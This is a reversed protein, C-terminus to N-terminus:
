MYQIKMHVDMQKNNTCQIQCYTQIGYVDYKSSFCCLQICYKLFFITNPVHLKSVEQEGTSLTDKTINHMM